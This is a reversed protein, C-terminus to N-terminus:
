CVRVVFLRAKLVHWAPNKVKEIFEKFSPIQPFFNILKTKFDELGSGFQDCGLRDLFQQKTPLLGPSILARVYESSFNDSFNNM